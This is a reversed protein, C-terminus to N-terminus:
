FSLLGNWRAISRCLCVLVLYGVCLEYTAGHMPTRDTPVDHVVIGSLLGLGDEAAQRTNSRIAGLRARGVSLRCGSFCQFLPISTTFHALEGMAAELFRPTLWNGFYTRLAQPGAAAALERTMLGNTATPFQLLLDGTLHMTMKTDGCTPTSTFGHNIHVLCMQFPLPRHASSLARASFEAGLARNASAPDAAVKCWKIKSLNPDERPCSEVQFADDFAPIPEMGHDPHCDPQQNAPNLPHGLDYKCDEM